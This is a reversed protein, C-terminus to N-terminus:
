KDYKRSEPILIERYEWEPIRNHKMRRRHMENEKLEFYFKIDCMNFIEQDYFIYSGEIIFMKRDCINM